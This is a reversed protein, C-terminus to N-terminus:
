AAPEEQSLRFEKVQECDFFEVLGDPGIFGARGGGFAVSPEDIFIARGDELVVVFPHFPERHMYSRLEREFRDVIM